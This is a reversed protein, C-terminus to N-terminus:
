CGRGDKAFHGPRPGQAAPAPPRSCLSAAPMGHREKAGTMAPPELLNCPSQFRDKADIAAIKGRADGVYTPKGLCDRSNVVNRCLSILGCYGQPLASGSLAPRTTCSHALDKQRRQYLSQSRRTYHLHALGIKTHLLHRLKTTTHDAARPHMDRPPQKNQSSAKRASFAQAPRPLRKYAGPAREPVSEVLLFHRTRGM